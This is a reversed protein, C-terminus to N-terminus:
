DLVFEVMIFHGTDGVSWKDNCTWRRPRVDAQLVATTAVRIQLPDDVERTKV